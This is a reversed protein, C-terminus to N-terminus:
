LRELRGTYQILRSAWSSRFVISISLVGPRCGEKNVDQKVSVVIQLGCPSFTWLIVARYFGCYAVLGRM